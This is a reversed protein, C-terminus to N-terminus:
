VGLLSASLASVGDAVPEGSMLKVIDARVTKSRRYYQHTAEIPIWSPFDYVDTCDVSRITAPPYTTPDTKNIPGDFGLRQTHNISRSLMMAIDRHSSYVSIRDALARLGYMGAGPTALTTYVEDAAALIAEHCTPGAAVPGAAMAAALAHNGMSHALLFARKGADRTRRVLDLVNVLFSAIHPGSQGSMDRDRLYAGDPPNPLSAFLKGASPWTFALITTDAEPVGSAAYFERNFAARKIADVFSNDFGHIFVL